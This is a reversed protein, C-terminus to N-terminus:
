AFIINNILRATDEKSLVIHALVIYAQQRSADGGDRPVQLRVSCREDNDNTIAYREIAVRKTGKKNSLTILHPNNNHFLTAMCEGNLESKTRTSELVPAINIKGVKEGNFLFKLKSGKQTIHDGQVVCCNFQNSM